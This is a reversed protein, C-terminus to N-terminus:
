RFMKTIIHEELINWNIRNGNSSVFSKKISTYLAQGPVEFKTRNLAINSNFWLRIFAIGSYIYINIYGVLTVYRFCIIKRQIDELSRPSKLNIMKADCSLKFEARDNSLLVIEVLCSEFLNPRNKDFQEGFTKKGARVVPGLTKNRSPWWEWSPIHNM